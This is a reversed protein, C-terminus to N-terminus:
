QPAGGSQGGEAPAPVESPATSDPSLSRSGTTGQGSANSSSGLAPPAGVKPKVFVVDDNIRERTPRAYTRIYQIKAREFLRLDSDQADAKFPGLLVWAFLPFIWRWFDRGRMSEPGTRIRLREHSEFQLM